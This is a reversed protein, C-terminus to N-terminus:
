PAWTIQVGNTLNFTNATCFVAANRYWSQYTRIGAATVAGRVSISPDSGAPYQSAGAVNTKAGLRVISGGACRLGDGFVTGAGAGAQTTGQFYLASSNPMQTGALVLTDLALSPTGSAALRGGTGLSSLCGVHAGVPSNNGCPCATGTGDGFCFPTISQLPDLTGLIGAPPNQGPVTGTTNYRTNNPGPTWGPQTSASIEVLNSAGSADGDSNFSEANIIATLLPQGAQLGQRIKWGYANWNSGGSITFHCLACSLGTGTQVNTGSASAPYRSQWTSFFPNEAAAPAAVTVVAAAQLLATAILLFPKSLAHM